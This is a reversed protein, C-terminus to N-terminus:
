KYYIRLWGEKITGDLNYAPEIEKAYGGDRIIWNRIEELEDLAEKDQKNCKFDTIYFENKDSKGLHDQELTM